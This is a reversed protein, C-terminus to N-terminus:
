RNGESALVAGISHGFMVYPLDLHPLLAAVLEPVLEVISTKLPERSPQERGPFQAICVELSLPRGQPWLRYVSGGVGAYPFCFLRARPLTRPERSRLRSVSM